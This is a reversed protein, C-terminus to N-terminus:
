ETISPEEWSPEDQALWDLRVDLARAINIATVLCPLRRGCEYHSIEMANIGCMKALEQQTLNRFERASKLRQRFGRLHKALIM